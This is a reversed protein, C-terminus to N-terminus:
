GNGVEQKVCCKCNCNCESIKSEDLKKDIVIIVISAVVLFVILAFEYSDMKM